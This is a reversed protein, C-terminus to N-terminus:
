AHVPSCLEVLVGNNDRVYSVTQGWPKQAPAQLPFAGVSVAQQYAAEVDDTVLSIEFGAPRKASRNRHFDSVSEQIFDEQVFSLATDGTQLQAYQGSDHVFGTELGFAQQYFAVTAAVDSVYVICYGFKM